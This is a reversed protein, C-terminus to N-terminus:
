PFAGPAGRRGVAVQARDVGAGGLPFARLDGHQGMGPVPQEGVVSRAPRELVAVEAAPASQGVQGQVGQGVRVAAHGRELVGDPRDAVLVGPGQGCVQRPQQRGVGLYRVGPLDVEEGGFRREGQRLDGPQQGGPQSRQHGRAGRPLGPVPHDLREKVQRGDPPLVVVGVPRRHARASDAHGGQVQEPVVLLLLEDLDGHPHDRGHLPEERAVPVVPGAQFPEVVPGVAEAEEDAVRLRQAAAGVPRDVQEGVAAPLHLADREERLADEEGARDDGGEGVGARLARPFWSEGRQEVVAEGRHRVCGFVQRRRVHHVVASAPTRRQACQHPRRPVRARRLVRGGVLAPVQGVRLPHDAPVPVAPPLQGEGGLAAVVLLRVVVVVQPREDDGQVALRQEGFQAGTQVGAVVEARGAVVDQAGAGVPVANRQHVSRGLLARCRCPGLHQQGFVAASADPEAQVEATAVRDGREARQHPVELEGGSREGDPVLDRSARREVDGFSEHREEGDSQRPGAPGQHRPRGPGQQQLVVGGAPPGGDAVVAVVSVVAGRCRHVAQVQRRLHGVPREFQPDRM